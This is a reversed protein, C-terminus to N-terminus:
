LAQELVSIPTTTSVGGREESIVKVQTVNIPMCFACM